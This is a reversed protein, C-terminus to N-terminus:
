IAYRMFKAFNADSLDSPRALTELWHQVQPLREDNAKAIDPQPIKDYSTPISDKSPIDIEAVESTFMAIPRQPLRLYLSNNIM